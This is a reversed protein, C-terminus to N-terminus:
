PWHKLQQPVLVQPQQPQQQQQQQSKQELTEAV